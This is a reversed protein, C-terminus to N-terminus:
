SRKGTQPGFIFRPGFWGLFQRVAIALLLYIATAV